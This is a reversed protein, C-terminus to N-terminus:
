CYCRVAIKQMFNESPTIGTTQDTVEISNDKASLKFGTGSASIYAM